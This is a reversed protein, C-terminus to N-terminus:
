PLADLGLAEVDAPIESFGGPSSHMIVKVKVYDWAPYAVRVEHCNDAAHADNRFAEHWEVM